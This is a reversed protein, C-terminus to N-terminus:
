VGCDDGLNHGHAGSWCVGLVWLRDRPSEGKELEPPGGLGLAVEAVGERLVRGRRIDQRVQSTGQMLLVPMLLGQSSCPVSQGQVGSM